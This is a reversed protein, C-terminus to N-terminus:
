KMFLPSSTDCTSPCPLSFDYVFYMKGNKPDYNIMDNGEETVGVVLMHPEFVGDRVKELGLYGRIHYTDDNSIIGKIDAAPILFAKLQNNELYKTGYKNWNSAWEQAVELPIADKPLEKQIDNAM